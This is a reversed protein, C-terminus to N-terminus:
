TRENWLSTESFPRFINVGLRDRKCQTCGTSKFLEYINVVTAIEMSVSQPGFVFSLLRNSRM